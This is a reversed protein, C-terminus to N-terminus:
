QWQWEADLVRLEKGTFYFLEGGEGVQAIGGSSILLLFFSFLHRETIESM